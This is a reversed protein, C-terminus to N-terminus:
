QGGGLCTGGLRSLKTYYSFDIVSVCVNLHGGSLPRVGDEGKLSHGQLCRLVGKTGVCIQRLRTRCTVRLGANIM